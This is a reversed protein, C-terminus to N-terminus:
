NYVNQHPDDPLHNKKAYRNQKQVRVKRIRGGILPFDTEFERYRENQHGRKRDRQPNEDNRSDLVRPEHEEKKKKPNKQSIHDRHHSHKSKPTPLLAINQDSHEHQQKITGMPQGTMESPTFNIVTPLFHFTSVPRFRVASARILNTLHLHRLEHLQHICQSGSIPAHRYFKWSSKGNLTLTTSGCNTWEM